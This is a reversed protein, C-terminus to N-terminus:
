KKEGKMLHLKEFLRVLKAGYPLELLQAKTICGALLIGALYFSAGILLGFLVILLNAATGSVFRTILFSLLFLVLVMAGGIAFPLLITKVPNLKFGTLKRISLLNLVLIILGFIM